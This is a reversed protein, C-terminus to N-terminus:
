RIIIIKKWLALFVKKLLFSLMIISFFIVVYLIFHGSLFSLNHIPKSFFMYTISVAVPIQIFRTLLYPLIRLDSGSIMGAIQAQIALGNWALIAETIMLQQILTGTSKSIENIGMTIEFFGTILGTLLSYHIQFYEALPNLIKILSDVFGIAHLINIIVSFLTIFGCITLLTLVTNRVAECLLTGFTQEKLRSTELIAYLAKKLIFIHNKQVPKSFSRIETKSYLIKLLIGCLFNSFYHIFAIAPGLSPNKFMGVSVAGLLFLPSANSTFSMLREGEERTCLNSQRLRATLIACLPFGSIYSMALVFGGAGPLNFLPRMVPELLVGLFSVFGLNILLESIILFPLLSPFVISWWTQIGKKAAEFSTEPYFIIGTGLVICVSIWFISLHLKNNKNNLQVRRLTEM